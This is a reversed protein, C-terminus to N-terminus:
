VGAVDAGGGGGEEGLTAPGPDFPFCRSFGIAESSAPAVAPAM